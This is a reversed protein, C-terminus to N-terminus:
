HMHLACAFGSRLQELKLNTTPLFIPQQLQVLALIEAERGAIPLLSPNSM